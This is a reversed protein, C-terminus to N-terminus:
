AHQRAHDDAHRRTEHERVICAGGSRETLDADPHSDSRQVILGPRKITSSTSPRVPHKVHFMRHQRSHTTDRPRPLSSVRHVGRLHAGVDLLRVGCSGPSASSHLPRTYRSAHSPSLLPPHLVSAIALVNGAHKAPFDRALEVSVRLVHRPSLSRSTNFPRCNQTERAHEPRLLPAGCVVSADVASPIHPPTWLPDSCRVGVATEAPVEGVRYGGRWTASSRRRPGADSVRHHVLAARRAGSVGWFVGSQETRAMGRRTWSGM